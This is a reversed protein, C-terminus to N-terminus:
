KSAVSFPASVRSAHSIALAIAFRPQGVSSSRMATNLGSPPGGGDSRGNLAHDPHRGGAQGKDTLLVCGDDVRHYILGANVADRVAQALEAPDEIGADRGISRASRWSQPRKRSATHLAVVFATALALRDPM